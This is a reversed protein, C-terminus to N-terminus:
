IPHENGGDNSLIIYSECDCEDGNTDDIRLPRLLITHKKGCNPCQSMNRIAKKWQRNTMQEM